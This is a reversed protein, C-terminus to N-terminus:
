KCNAFYVIVDIICVQLSRMSHSLKCSLPPTHTHTHTHTLSFFLTHTYPSPCGTHVNGCINEQPVPRGNPTSRIIVLKADRVLLSAAYLSAIAFHLREKM